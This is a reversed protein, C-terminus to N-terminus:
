EDIRLWHRSFNNLRIVPREGETLIDGRLSVSDGDRVPTSFKWWLICIGVIGSATLLEFRRPFLNSGAANFVRGSVIADEGDTVASVLDMPTPHSADRFRITTVVDASLQLGTWRRAIIPGISNHGNRFVRRYREYQLRQREPSVATFGLRDRIGPLETRLVDLNALGEIVFDVDKRVKGESTLHLGFMSSGFIGVSEKGIVAALETYLDHWITAQFTAAMEGLSVIPDHHEVVGEIPLLTYVDLADAPLQEDEIFNKRYRVGHYVRDGKSDPSYVNYGLFHTRSDLNGVVRYIRGDGTVVHDLDFAAHRETEM